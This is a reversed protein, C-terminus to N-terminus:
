RSNVPRLNATLFDAMLAAHGDVMEVGNSTRCGKARAAILLASDVPKTIVEGVFQDPTLLAADFPLPDAPRMGLPTANVVLDYGRPDNGGASVGLKGALTAARTPEIDHVTVSAVGADVLAGAIAAGVGGSGVILAKRGRPEFGKARVANVFGLGDSIDGYLSGDPERRLLNASGVKATQPGLRDLHRMVAVKHPVTLVLGDFNTSAKFGALVADFGPPPVEIPVLVANLGRAAFIANLAAPARVQQIPYGLIAFLRTNGDIM